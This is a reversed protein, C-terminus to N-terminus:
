LQEELQTKQKELVEVLDQKDRTTENLQDREKTLKDVATKAERLQHEVKELYEIDLM